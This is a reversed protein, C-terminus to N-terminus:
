SIFHQQNTIIQLNEGWNQKCKEVLYSAFAPNNNAFRMVAIIEGSSAFRLAFSEDSIYLAVPAGLKEACYKFLRPGTKKLESRDGVTPINENGAVMIDILTLMADIRDPGEKGNGQFLRKALNGIPAACCLSQDWRQVMTGSSPEVGYCAWRYSEDINLTRVVGSVTGATLMNSEM